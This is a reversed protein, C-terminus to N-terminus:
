SCKLGEQKTGKFNLSLLVIGMGLWVVEDKDGIVIAVLLPPVLVCGDGATTL